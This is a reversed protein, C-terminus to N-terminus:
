SSAAARSNVLQRIGRIRHGALLMARRLLERAWAESVAVDPGHAERHEILQAVALATALDGAGVTDIVPGDLKAAPEHVDLGERNVWRGGLSGETALVNRAGLDLLYSTVEDVPADFLLEADSASLHVLLASSAHRELRERVLVLDDEAGIPPKADLILRNQPQLVADLMTRHQKRDHFAFGAVVVLAAQDITDLQQQDFDIRQTVPHEVKRKVRHKKQTLRLRGTAEGERLTCFARVGVDELAETLLEADHDQGLSGIFVSAHGLLALERAIRFAPGGTRPVRDSAHRPKFDEIVAEGVVAIPTRLVAAHDRRATLTGM